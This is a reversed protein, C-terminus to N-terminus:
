HDTTLSRCAAASALDMGIRCARDNRSGGEGRRSVRRRGNGEPTNTLLRSLDIDIMMWSLEIFQVSSHVRNARIDIM